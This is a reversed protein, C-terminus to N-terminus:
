IATVMWDYIYECLQTKRNPSSVIIFMERYEPYRSCLIENEVGLRCMAYNRLSRERLVNRGFFFTAM